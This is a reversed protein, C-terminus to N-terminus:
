LADRLCVFEDFHELFIDTLLPDFQKAREEKYLDYIQTDPWADKYSRTSSLADFVDAVATIRSFLHIDHKELNNPYGKGDWREHHQHAVTAAIKLIKQSSQNLINFGLSTHYKVIEYEQQTLKSPKYLITAPIYKKGIDHMPTAYNLLTIEDENLKIKKALHESYLTVRKTHEDTENTHAIHNEFQM